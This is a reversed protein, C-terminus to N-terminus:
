GLRKLQTEDVVREHDDVGSKIRYIPVGGSEPLLRVVDYPGRPARLAISQKLEVVNGIRFKHKLLVSGQTDGFCGPTRM